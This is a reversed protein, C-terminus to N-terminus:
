NCQEDTVEFGGRISLLYKFNCFFNTKEMLGGHVLANRTGSCEVERTFGQDERYISQCNSSGQENDDGVSFEAAVQRAYQLPDHVFVGAWTSSAFVTLAIFIYKM